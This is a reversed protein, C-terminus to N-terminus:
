YFPWYGAMSHLAGIGLYAAISVAAIIIEFNRGKAPPATWAPQARNIMIPSAIAWVLLGGFLVISALDGNVLLHAGAWARASALMPHRIRRAIAAKAAGAVLLYVAALMILNNVGVLWHPPSWIMTVPVARYGVVMLAIGGLSMLSVLAKGGAEGLAARATPAIRKLLHSVIWLALGLLLNIM